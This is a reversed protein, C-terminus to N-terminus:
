LSQQLCLILSLNSFDHAYQPQGLFYKCFITYWSLTLCNHENLCIKSYYAVFIKNVWM